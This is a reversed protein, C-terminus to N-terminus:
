YFLIPIAILIFKKVNKRSGNRIEEKEEKIKNISVEICIWSTLNLTHQMCDGWCILNHSKIKIRVIM